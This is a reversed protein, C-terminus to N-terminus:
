ETRIVQGVNLVNPNKIQPNLKLLKEASIGMDSALEGISEDSKVTYTERETSGDDSEQIPAYGSGDSYEVFRFSYRVYNELPEEIVSLKEFVAFVSPWLPHVLVGHGGQSFLMALKRFEAYANEGFFEGEGSFVRACNGLDQAIFGSFPLKMCSVRREYSIEFSYPNHQWIYDKFRMSGLM